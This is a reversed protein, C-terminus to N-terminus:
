AHRENNILETKWDFMRSDKINQDNKEASRCRLAQKGNINGMESLIEWNLKLGTSYQM